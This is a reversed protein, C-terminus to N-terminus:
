HASLSPNQVIGSLGSNWKLCASSTSYRSKDPPLTISSSDFRLLSFSSSLSFTVFDGSNLRSLFSSLCTILAGGNCRAPPALRRGSRRSLKAGQFACRLAECCLREYHRGKTSYIFLGRSILDSAGFTLDELRSREDRYGASVAIRKPLGTITDQVADVLGLCADYAWPSSAVYFSVFQTKAPFDAYVQTKIKLTNGDAWKFGIRDEDAFKM